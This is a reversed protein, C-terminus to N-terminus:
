NTFFKIHLYPLGVWGVNHPTANRFGFVWFINNLRGNSGCHYPGGEGSINWNSDFYADKNIKYEATGGPHNWIHINNADVYEVVGGDINFCYVKVGDITGTLEHPGTPGSNPISAPSMAWTSSGQQLVIRHSPSSSALAPYTVASAAMLIGGAILMLYRRRIM